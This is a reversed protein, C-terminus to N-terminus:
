LSAVQVPRGPVQVLELVTIPILAVTTKICMGFLGSLCFTRAFLWHLWLPQAVEAGLAVDPLPAVSPLQGHRPHLQDPEHARCCLRRLPEARGLLGSRGVAVEVLM